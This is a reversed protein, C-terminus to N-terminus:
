FRTGRKVKSVIRMVEVAEDIRIPFPKRGRIAAHLEDWIDYTKKPAVGITKEVWKLNDPSGWGDPVTEKPERPKLRQKPDLYRLTMTDKACALGGRDGLVIYQPEEIAGGGSIQIDVLCDDAGVLQIKVHDEADGAAAVLDLHGVAKKVPKDPAGLFQLAHDIIHPGWNLLQGGGYKKLTQWDDRRSYGSRVLKITHVRGLLGSAIIERIHLFGAEFRRNHRIYLRGASKAAFDRLRKAQAYTTTMPKELFVHKGAELALRAHKYHDVSWTAISVLEINPDKLFEKYSDYVACGPYGQKMRERWPEFTDCGAAIEFLDEKGELERCHMGWGARGLGAIGLAIPKKKPM